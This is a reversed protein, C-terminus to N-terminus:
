KVLIVLGPGAYERLDLIRTERWAENGDTKIVLEAKWVGPKAGRWRVASEGPNEAVLVKETGTVEATWRSLDGGEGTM